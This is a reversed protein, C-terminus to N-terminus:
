RMLGPKFLGVTSVSCIRDTDEQQLCHPRLLIPAIPWTSSTVLASLRAIPLVPTPGGVCVCQGPHGKRGPMDSTM